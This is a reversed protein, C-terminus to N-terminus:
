KKLMEADVKKQSVYLKVEIGENQLAQALAIGPAIHGGTGGCAIVVKKMINVNSCIKLVTLVLFQCM